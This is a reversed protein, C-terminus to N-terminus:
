NHERKMEQLAHHVINLCDSILIVYPKKCTGETYLVKMEQWNLCFHYSHKPLTFDPKRM